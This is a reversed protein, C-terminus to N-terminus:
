YQRAAAFKTKTGIIYLRITVSSSKELLLYVKYKKHGLSYFNLIILSCKGGQGLALTSVKLFLLIQM